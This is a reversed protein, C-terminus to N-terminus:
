KTLLWVGLIAFAAGWIYFFVVTGKEGLVKRFARIKAMDWIKQPKKAAIFFVMVAYIIALIGLLAMTNM